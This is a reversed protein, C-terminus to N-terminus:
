LLPFYHYANEPFVISKNIYLRKVKSCNVQTSENTFTNTVTLLDEYKTDLVFSHSFRTNENSLFQDIYDIYTCFLM